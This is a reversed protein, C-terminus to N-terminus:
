ITSRPCSTNPVHSRLPCSFAASWFIESSVSATLPLPIKSTSSLLYFLLIQPTFHTLRGLLPDLLPDPLQARRSPRETAEESSVRSGEEKGGPSDASGTAYLHPDDPTQALGGLVQPTRHSVQSTVPRPPCLWPISPRSDGTPPDCTCWGSRREGEM